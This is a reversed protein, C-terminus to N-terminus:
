KGTYTGPIKVGHVEVTITNAEGARLSKRARMQTTEQQVANCVLDEVQKAVGAVVATAAGAEANFNGVISVILAIIPEASTAFSCKDKLWDVIGQVTTDGSGPLTCGVLPIAAIALLFNRRLM